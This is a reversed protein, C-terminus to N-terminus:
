SKELKELSKKLIEEFLPEFKKNYEVIPKLNVLANVFERNYPIKGLIPIKYKEAFKEIKKSFKKNLDFKNIIIGYPIRFHEVTRLARKL